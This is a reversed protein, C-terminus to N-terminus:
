LSDIPADGPWRYMLLVFWVVQDVQIQSEHWWAFYVVWDVWLEFMLLSQFWLCSYMCSNYTRNMWCVANDVGSSAHMGHLVRHVSNEPLDQDESAYSSRSPRRGWGSLGNNAGIQLWVCCKLVAFILNSCSMTKSLM